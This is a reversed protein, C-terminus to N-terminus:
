ILRIYLRKWEMLHQVSSIPVLYVFGEEQYESGRHGQKGLLDGRM